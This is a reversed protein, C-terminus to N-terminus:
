YHLSESIDSGTIKLSVHIKLIKSKNLFDLADNAFQGFAPKVKVLAVAVISRRSHESDRVRVKFYNLIKPLM